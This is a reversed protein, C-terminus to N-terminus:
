GKVSADPDVAAHLGDVMVDPPAPSDPAAREWPYVIWDDTIDVFFDPADDVFRNHGKKFHMVSVKVDAPNARKVKERVSRMTRGSDWVDDVILVRRGKLADPSPFSLFRPETMGFFKEGDDSYFMVTAALVTRLELSQSILTAPVLGGRTVALITDFITESSQFQDVLQTSLTEM